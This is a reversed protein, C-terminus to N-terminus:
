AEIVKVGDGVRLTGGVLVQGTVGGRWAPTLAQRLGDHQQDMLHCPRTEGHVKIRVPGISLEKGACSALDIGDILFNARRTWWPLETGLERCTDDWAQKSMLTVERKGAKRNESDLGRGPIVTCHDIEIMPDGDVSRHAIAALIGNM